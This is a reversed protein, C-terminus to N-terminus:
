RVAILYYNYKDKYVRRIKFGVKDALSKLERGRFAHYYRKSVVRADSDKWDFLIDGFDMKNKKILKLFFFKRILTKFREQGRMNWVTLILHGGPKLKNKLQRLAKIRLEKGPLHHFLAVCFVFDFNYEPIEGLALVDGQRFKYYPYQKRAYNLLQKNKDVGVYQIQRGLFAELLRGNGCGVDLIKQNEKVAKTLQVLEAWLIGMSKKRTENYQKAIDIYNQEVIKLLERETKKDM